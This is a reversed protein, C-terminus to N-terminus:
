AGVIKRKKNLNIFSLSNLICTTDRNILDDKNLEDFYKLTDNILAQKIVEVKDIDILIKMNEIIKSNGYDIILFLLITMEYESFHKIVKPNIITLDINNKLLLDIVQKLSYNFRDFINSVITYTNNKLIDNIYIKEEIDLSSYIKDLSVEHFYENGTKIKNYEDTLEEEIKKRQEEDDKIRKLKARNPIEKYTRDTIIGNEEMYKISEIGFMAIKNYYSLVDMNAKVSDKSNLYSTIFSIMVNDPLNLIVKKIFDSITEVDFIRELEKIYIEITCTNNNYKRMLDQNKCMNIRMNEDKIYKDFLPYKKSFNNKKMIM